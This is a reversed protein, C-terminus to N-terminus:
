IKNIFDSVIKYDLNHNTECVEIEFENTTKIFGTGAINLGNINYNTCYIYYKNPLILIKHIYNTNLIASTLKLFRTM